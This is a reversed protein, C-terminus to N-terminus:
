DSYADGATPGCAVEKPGAYGICDARAGRRAVAGRSERRQDSLGPLVYTAIGWLTVFLSM